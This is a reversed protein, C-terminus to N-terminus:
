GPNPRADPRCGFQPRSGDLKWFDEGIPVIKLGLYKLQKEPVLYWSVM